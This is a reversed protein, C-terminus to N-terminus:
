VTDLRVLTIDKQTVVGATAQLLEAPVTEGTLWCVIARPLDVGAAHSFPYGGGFRANMELVYPTDDQLFVDCDMNAIHRLKRGLRRGVDKLVESDVTVACDTEGSRMAHKKKCVTTQYNGDLDNIIDLGYEQGRIKEQILVCQEMNEASEYKLYTKRITNVTKRYFVKLEEPDEAEYIAISGMGWRPKVMLPFILSGQAVADEAAELSLFTQPVSFGNEKLYQYTKWKDNCLAIIHEDSVIVRVGIRAFDERHRSLIPLDVDFLSIIASIQHERCYDLLFPIYGDDYILPTVVCHDAVQFAPSLGSSNAVHIEGMGRLAERFYKVLYSRRGVSTFLINM